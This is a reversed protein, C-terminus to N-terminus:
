FRRSLGVYGLSAKQEVTVGISELSLDDFLTFARGGYDSYRYEGRVAWAPSIMREIGGGATWGFVTASESDDHPTACWGVPFGGECAASVKERLIALGGTSYILTRPTLLVGARGRVSADWENEIRAINEGPGFDTSWAGPIGIRAEDSDLKAVEGEIGVVLWHSAQWDLGLYFNLRMGSPDFAAPNDNGVRTSGGFIDNPCTAPFAEPALCDTTWRSDFAVAGIGGGIHVGTWIDGAAKALAPGAVLDQSSAPLAAVAV